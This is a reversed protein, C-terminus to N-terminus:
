SGQRKWEYPQFAPDAKDILGKDVADSLQMNFESMAGSRRATSARAASWQGKKREAMETKKIAEVHLQTVKLGTVTRDLMEESTIVLRQTCERDGLLVAMRLNRKVRISSRGCAERLMLKSLSLLQEGRSFAEVDIGTRTRTEAEALRARQERM